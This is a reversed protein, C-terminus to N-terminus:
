ARVVAIFAGAGCGFACYRRSTTDPGATKPLISCHGDVRAEKTDVDSDGVDPRGCREAPHDPQRNGVIRLQTLVGLDVQAAAHVECQAGLPDHAHVVYSGCQREGDAGGDAATCNWSRDRSATSARKALSM